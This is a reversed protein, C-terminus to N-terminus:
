EVANGAEAEAKDQHCKSNLWNGYHEQGVWKKRGQQKQVFSKEVSFMFPGLFYLGIDYDSICTEVIETKREIEKFSLDGPDLWVADKELM